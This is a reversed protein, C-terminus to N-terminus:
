DEMFKKVERIGSTGKQGQKKEATVRGKGGALERSSYMNGLSQTHHFPKTGWLFVTYTSNREWGGWEPSEGMETEWGWSRRQGCQWHRTCWWISLAHAGSSSIRAATTHHLLSCDSLYNRSDQFGNRPSPPHQSSWATMAQLWSQM